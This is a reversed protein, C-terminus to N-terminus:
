QAKVERMVDLMRFLAKINQMLITTDGHFVLGGEFMGAFVDNYMPPPVPQAFKQWAELPWRLAFQWPDMPTPSEAVNRIRGGRVAVLFERGGFDLLFDADFYKGVYQMEPDSEVAKAYLDFWALSPFEAVATQAM